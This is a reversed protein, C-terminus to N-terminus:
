STRRAGWAPRWSLSAARSRRSCSWATLRTDAPSSLMDSLACFREVDQRPGIFLVRESVGLTEALSRASDVTSAVGGVVLLMVTPAHVLAGIAHEIGKGPLDHGVFLAVRDEDDLGYELRLRARDEELPPRFRDTDM